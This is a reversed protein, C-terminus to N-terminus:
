WKQAAFRHLSRRMGWALLPGLLRFGAEGLLGFPPDLRETWTVTSGADQSDVVFTACGRLLTGLHRARCRHPPTWETIELEDLLGVDLIGTFGFIRSGVSRGDGALVRVRTALMWEGQRSWDTLVSWVLEAPASVGTRATVEYATMDVM